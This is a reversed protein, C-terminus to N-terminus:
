PLQRREMWEDSVDAHCLTNEFREVIRDFEGHLRAPILEKLEELESMANDMVIKADLLMGHKLKRLPRCQLEMDCRGREARATIM